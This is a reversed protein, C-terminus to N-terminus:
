AYASGRPMKCLFIPSKRALRRVLSHARSGVHLQILTNYAGASFLQPVTFPIWLIECTLPDGAMHALTHTQKTQLKVKSLIIKHGM